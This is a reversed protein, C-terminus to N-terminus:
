VVDWIYDYATRELQLDMLQHMIIDLAKNHQQILFSQLMIILFCM